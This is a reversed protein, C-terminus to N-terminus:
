FVYHDQNLGVGTPLVVLSSTDFKMDVTVSTGAYSKSEYTYTYGLTFTMPAKSGINGLAKKFANNFTNEAVSRTTNFALPMVRNGKSTSSLQGSVHKSFRAFTNAADTRFKFNKQVVDYTIGIADSTAFSYYFDNEKLDGGTPTKGPAYIASIANKFDDTLAIDYSTEAFVGQVTGVGYTPTSTVTYTTDFAVSEASFKVGINSIRKVYDFTCQATLEASERSKVTVIFPEGFAQKCTVTATLAGDSSPVVTAYQAIDKGTAWSSSSNSWAITWDVKKNDADAPEITARLTMATDASVPDIGYEEYMAVPIVASTLQVQKYEDSPKGAIMGGHGAMAGGVEEIAAPEEDKAAPVKFWGAFIGAFLVGVLIFAVFTVIWKIKDSNIHNKLEKKEM